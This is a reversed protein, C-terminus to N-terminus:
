INKLVFNRAFIVRKKSVDLYVGWLKGLEGLVVRWYPCPM